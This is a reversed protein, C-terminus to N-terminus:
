RRMGPAPPTLEYTEDNTLAAAPSLERMQTLADGLDRIQDAAIFPLSFIDGLIGGQQVSNGFAPTVNQM